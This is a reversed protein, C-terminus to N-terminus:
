YRLRVKGFHNWTWRGKLVTVKRYKQPHTKGFILNRIGWVDPSPVSRPCKWFTAFQLSSHYVLVHSNRWRDKGPPINHKNGKGNYPLMMTDYITMTEGTSNPKQLPKKKALNHARSIKPCMLSKVWVECVSPGWLQIFNSCWSTAFDCIM